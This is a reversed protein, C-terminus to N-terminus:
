SHPFFPELSPELEGRRRTKRRRRAEMRGDNRKKKDLKRRKQTAVDYRDRQAPEDKARGGRADAARKRRRAAGAASGAVAPIRLRLELRAECVRVDM